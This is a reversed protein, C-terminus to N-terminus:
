MTYTIFIMFGVKYKRYTILNTSKRIHEDVLWMCGTPMLFFSTARTYRM